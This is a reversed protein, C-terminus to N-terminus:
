IISLSHTSQTKQNNVSGLIPIGNKIFNEVEFDSILERLDKIKLDTERYEYRSLTMETRLVCLTKYVEVIRNLKHPTIKGEPTGYILMDAAKYVPVREFFNEYKM